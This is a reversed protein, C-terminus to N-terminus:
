NQNKNANNNEKQDRFKRSPYEKIELIHINKVYLKTKLQNLTKPDRTGLRFNKSAYKTTFHINIDKLKEHTNPLCTYKTNDSHMIDYFDMIDLKKVTGNMSDINGSKKLSPKISITWQLSVNKKCNQM